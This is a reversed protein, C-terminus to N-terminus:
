SKGVVGIVIAAVVGIAIAPGYCFRNGASTAVVERRAGRGGAILRSSGRLTVRLTGRQAAVVAAIVGGAIASCAFAQVVMAPGLLPGLAAFLKVDGAGTGGFLHGPLMLALAVGLGALAMPFPVAGIGSASLLLGVAATPVTVVNPIRRTRLDIAAGVGVGAVAIALTIAESTTSL